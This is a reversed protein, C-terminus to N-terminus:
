SHTSVIIEDDMHELYENSNEQERKVHPEKKVKESVSTSGSDLPEEKKMQIGGDALKQTEPEEKVVTVQEQYVKIQQELDQNKSREALLEKQM